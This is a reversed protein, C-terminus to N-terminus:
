SYVSVPPPLSSNYAQALSAPKKPARGLHLCVRRWVAPWAWSPPLEASGLRCQVVSFHVARCPVYIARM